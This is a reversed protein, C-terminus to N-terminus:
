AQKCTRPARNKCFLFSPLKHVNTYTCIQSCTCIWMKAHIHKNLNVRFFLFLCAPICNFRCGNEPLLDSEQLIMHLYVTFNNKVSNKNKKEKEEEEAGAKM